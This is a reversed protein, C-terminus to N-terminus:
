PSLLGALGAALAGATVAPTLYLLALPSGLTFGFRGQESGISPGIALGPLLRPSDASSRGGWTFTWSDLEDESSM